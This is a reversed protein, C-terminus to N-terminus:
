HAVVAVLSGDDLKDAGDLVVSDGPQLAGQGVATVAGYTIGATVHVLKVGGKGAKADGRALRLVFDGSAGHQIAASPVTLADRLTGVTMRVNVFRNPFLRGNLNPASAKLKVTGTSTDAQNDIAVLTAHDLVDRKDRDLVEVSLTKGTSAADVVDGIRDEPVAYVVTTPSDSTLTAIGTTDSTTVYNGADVSLLGIRGDMPAVIDCYGVEVQLNAVNGRDSKVTGEYQKVTSRQTDLTQRSVSGADILQVYRQLDARANDLLAKDHELTGQAQLLQARLSRSDIRAIVQGARVRQGEKVLVAELTGSVQTKVTVTARPTVTGLADLVEPLDQRVVLGLTVPTAATAASQAQTRKPTSAVVHWLSAVVALVAAAIALHRYSSSLKLGFGNSIFAGISGAASGIAM